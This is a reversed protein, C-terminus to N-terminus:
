EVHIRDEPQTRKDRTLSFKSNFHGVQPAAQLMVTHRTRTGPKALREL